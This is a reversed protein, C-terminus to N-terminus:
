LRRRIEGVNDAILLVGLGLLGVLLLERLFTVALILASVFALVVTIRLVLEIINKDFFSEIALYSALLAVLALPAPLIRFWVIVALAAILLGVSLAAWAEGFARRETVAPPEPVAAHRLHIRPDDLKGARLDALRRLGAAIASGLEVEQTRLASLRAEGERLGLVSEIRLRDVGAATRIAAVEAELKPLSESLAAAEAAVEERSAALEALRTELVPIAQSPPAVKDLGAFGLPDHWSQRVSGTRTYKPGAPAREGAFRDGTDLGWLGRYRDVWGDGDGILIPDWDVDGGPGVVLGDGRAYDVFPVSFARRARAGLDGPDPQGLSDRWLRRALDLPGRINREGPFPLLMIYEGRELYTAHSGAGPYVIPHDDITELRPDDWRRRLDDGKEDHAAACFWAPLMTGDDFQELVVFCQELDAEHDNAGDFTSRWDNMAYFFMYHLIVWRGERIVRGHYVVRPDRERIADYRVSAAAATGGPVRGRALLSTVLGADVLRAALGVRALRGPASFRQHEPRSRWRRLELANLPKPVFRLFQAEGPAPDGVDALKELDLEGAPVIVRAERLSPGALLDCSEVYPGTAMPFFLEGDTFRLIPELRRLLELDSPNVATPAPQATM